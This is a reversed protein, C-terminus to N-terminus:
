FIAYRNAQAHCIWKDILLASSRFVVGVWTLNNFDVADPISVEVVRCRESGVTTAYNRVNHPTGYMESPVHRSSSTVHEVMYMSSLIPVTFQVQSEAVFGLQVSIQSIFM